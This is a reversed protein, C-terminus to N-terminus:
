HLNLLIIPQGQEYALVFGSGNCKNSSYQLSLQAVLVSMIPRRMQFGAFRRGFGWFEGAQPCSILLQPTM